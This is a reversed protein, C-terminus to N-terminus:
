FPLDDADVIGQGYTRHLLDVSTSPQNEDPFPIGAIDANGNSQFTNFQGDDRTRVNKLTEGPKINPTNFQGDDLDEFKPILDVTNKNLKMTSVWDIFAWKESKKFVVDISTDIIGSLDSFQFTQSVGMMAIIVPMCANDTYSVYGSKNIYFNKVWNNPMIYPLSNEKYEVGDISFTFEIVNYPKNKKSTLELWNLDTIVAVSTLTDSRNGMETIAKIQELTLPM